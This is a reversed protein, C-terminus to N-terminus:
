SLLKGIIVQVLVGALAAVVLGVLCYVMATQASAVTSPDGSAVMMRIANVIIGIVAAAGVIYAVITVAVGITHVIPNGNTGSSNGGVDKCVSSGSSAGGCVGGFLNVASTQGGFVLAPATLSVLLLICFVKRKM